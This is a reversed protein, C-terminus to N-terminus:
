TGPIVRMNRLLPAAIAAAAVLLICWAAVPLDGAMMMTGSAIAALGALLMARPELRQPCRRWAAIGLRTAALCNAALLAAASGAAGWWATAPWVMALFALLALLSNSTAWLTRGDQLMGATLPSRATMVLRSLLLLVFIAAGAMTADHALLVFLPERLALLLLVFLAGAALMVSSIRGLILGADGRRLAHHVLGGFAMLFPTALLAEFLMTIRNAVLFLGAAEISVLAALLFRCITDLAYRLTLGGMMPLGYRLLRISRATDFDLRLRTRLLIFAALTTLGQAALQAMLLGALGYQAEVVFWYSGCLLLGLQTVSFVGALKVHRAARLETLLVVQLAGTVLLPAVLWAMPLPVADFWAMIAADSFLSAILTGVLLGGGGSLLLTNGLLAPREDPPVNAYYYLYSFKLGLLGLTLGQTLATDVLSYLGLEAPALRATIMPLLLLGGLGLLGLSLLYGGFDHLLARTFAAPGELRDPARAADPESPSDAAPVASSLDATATTPTTV